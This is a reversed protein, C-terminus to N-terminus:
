FLGNIWASARVFMATMTDLRQQQCAIRDDREGVPQVPAMLHDFDFRQSADFEQLAVQREYFRAVEKAAGAV